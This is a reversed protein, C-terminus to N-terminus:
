TWTIVPVIGEPTRLSPLYNEDDLFYLPYEVILGQIGKLKEQAQLPDTDKLKPANTYKSVDSFKRVHDTPLTAFVEEYILANKRAVDRIYNYFQDSVPDSIDINLPNEFQIGLMMAFLKKRWSSCFKGVRVSKGNMRGHEKERDNIVMCFESDRFGLLSRDNINASGCIVMRDDIIMLKSHIYIIETVLHGMLIDHSRMGFFSIYDNPPVGAKELRKFLSTEGKTISRMIFFLVAQIANVNDFGPLLPLVIYVRFKEQSLHAREIRRFLAEALQNRVQPDQAITIFFQNEIYIYHKAADIMQIYANQISTEIIKTGLSWRAGSRVCQADVKFPKSPLFDRWNEVKLEEEDDYSKPLLFPYSANNLKKECKHINWRQIFHRAVDRAAQGFVVLAEDHWPMRPVTKRDIYDESFKELTEFDKQYLNSYDKGIFYRQTTDATHSPGTFIQPEESLEEEESDDEYSNRMKYAFKRWKRAYRDPRRDDDFQRREISLIDDNDLDDSNKDADGGTLKTELWKKAVSKMHYGTGPPHVPSGPKPDESSKHPAGFATVMHDSSKAPKEGAQEAMQTTAKEATEVVETGGAAEKEAALESPMKLNRDNEDGLDVLRMFEDDWRGYCLDIGGVFAIKQDIVVLKEHHSWFIVGGKPYHDPHRIVKIFGTQSKSTLARKTYASNLGLAIQMEKYVMIYVRIGSDALRGLLLDLRYTEDNSPRILMIEPSLWWDTIFIEEKATLLAKAVAEMYSKGNIFWYALQKERIPAFSNFRSATAHLFGKAQEQLNELHQRWEECNRTTRCKVVLTRQLNKIRIGHYTGSHRFGTSVEFGRDVLMPFRIENTDPRIYTLYTDKIVFWKRGHQFKCSDCFFPLRFFMRQGRYHDHSRKISYCEKRSVSIGYVFSICSVNFFESTSPHRRFKPHRLIKNLYEALIQCRERIFTENIFALRDNRTPFCPNENDEDSPRDFDNLNRKTEGQVFQFLSKHLDHFHRYRKYISWQFTGHLITICYLYPNLFETFATYTREATISTVTVPVNPVFTRGTRDYAHSITFKDDRQFRENQEGFVDDPYPLYENHKRDPHGAHIALEAIGATHQVLAGVGGPEDQHTM